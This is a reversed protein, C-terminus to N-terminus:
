QPCTPLSHAEGKVNAAYQIRTKVSKSMHTISWCVSPDISWNHWSLENIINLYIMSFVQKATAHNGGIMLSKGIVIIVVVNFVIGLINIPTVVPDSFSEAAANLGICNWGYPLLYGFVRDCPRQSENARISSADTTISTEIISSAM